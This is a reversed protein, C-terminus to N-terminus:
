TLNYLFIEDIASIRTSERNPRVRYTDVRVIFYHSSGTVVGESLREIRSGEIVHNLSSSPSVRAKSRSQYCFNILRFFFFLGETLSNRTVMIFNLLFYKYTTCNYMHIQKSIGIFLDVESNGM